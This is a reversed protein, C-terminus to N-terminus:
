QRVISSQNFISQLNISSQNFISQFSISSRNFTSELQLSYGSFNWQLDVSSSNFFQLFTTSRNEATHRIALSVIYPRTNLAERPYVNCIEFTKVRKHTMLIFIIIKCCSWNRFLIKQTTKLSQASKQTGFIRSMHLTKIFNRALHSKLSMVKFSYISTIDHM